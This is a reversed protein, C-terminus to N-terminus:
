MRSYLLIANHTFDTINEIVGAITVYYPGAGPYTHSISVPDGYVNDTKTGDGWYITMMNPSKFGITVSSGNVQLVRKIPQNEVLNLTFQIFYPGRDAWNNDYDLKGPHHVEFPFVSSGAKVLLRLEGPSRLLESIQRLKDIADGQNNTKYWCKMQINRVDFVPKLLDQVKGHEDKWDVTLPDKRNPLEFVGTFKEVRIGFADLDIHGLTFDVPELTQNIVEKIEEVTIAEAWARLGDLYCFGTTKHPANNNIAFGLILGPPKTFKAKLTEGLYVSVVNGKQIVTILEWFELRTYLDFEILGAGDFNFVAGTRTPGLAQPVAKAWLQASFDQSTDLIFEEVEAKGAGPFYVCNAFKGPIFRGFEISANHGGPGFDYAITSGDEEDFPIDFIPEAM